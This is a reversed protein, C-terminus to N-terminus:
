RKLHVEYTTEDVVEVAGRWEEKGRRFVLAIKGPPVSTLVAPTTTFTRTMSMPGTDFEVNWSTAQEIPSHIKLIAGRRLAVSHRAETPSVRLQKEDSDFDSPRSTGVILDGSWMDLRVVGDPDPTRTAYRWGADNEVPRWRLEVSETCPSGDAYRVMIAARVTARPQMRITRRIMGQQKGLRVKIDAYGAASIEVGFDDKKPFVVGRSKEDFVGLFGATRADWGAYVAGDVLRTQTSIGNGILWPDRKPDLRDAFCVRVDGSPVPAGTTADIVRLLMGTPQVAVLEVGSDGARARRPRFLWEPSRSVLGYEGAELGTLRFRGAADTEVSSEHYRSRRAALRIMSTDLDETHVWGDTDLSMLDPVRNAFVRVGPLAEGRENVVLGTILAGCGLEVDVRTGILEVALDERLQRLHGNALFGVDITYRETRDPLDLGYSGDSQTTTQALIPVEDESDPRAARTRVPDLPSLRAYM